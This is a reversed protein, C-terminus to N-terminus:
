RGGDGQACVGRRGVDVDGRRGADMAPVLSSADSGGSPIAFEAGNAPARM